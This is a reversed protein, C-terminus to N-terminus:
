APRGFSDALVAERVESLQALSRPYSLKRVPVARILRTAEAVQRQLRDSDAILGNFTNAVLALFAERVPLTEIRIRRQRRMEHPPALVYVARLPVPKECRRETELPFVHKNTEANMPVSNVCSGFFRRATDPFLKIRSPGPHANLGQETQSLLLLDDTLLLSGADLFSAALTSKGFGSDGLFVIAEGDVVIATGHLPEFGGKVLAFSLAQGLLYVHFSELSADPARDCLIQRGGNSVLYQGLGHWRVYSSHDNLHAYQFWDSRSHLEAGAIAKSFREPTGRRLEIEALATEYTEPLNLPIESRLSIGYIGYHFQLSDRFIPQPSVEPCRPSSIYTFTLHLSTRRSVRARGNDELALV